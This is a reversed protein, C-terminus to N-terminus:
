ICTQKDYMLKAKTSGDPVLSPLSLFRETVEAVEFTSRNRLEPTLILGM